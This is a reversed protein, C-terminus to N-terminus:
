PVPSVGVYMQPQVVLCCHGIYVVHSTGAGWDPLGVTSTTDPILAVEILWDDEPPLCSRLLYLTQFLATKLLTAAECLHTDSISAAPTGIRHSNTQLVDSSGIM